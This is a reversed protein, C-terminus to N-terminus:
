FINGFNKLHATFLSCHVIQVDIVTFSNETTQDKNDTNLINMKFVRTAM